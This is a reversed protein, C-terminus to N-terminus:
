GESIPAVSEIVNLFSDSEATEYDIDVSQIIVNPRQDGLKELQKNQYDTVQKFWEDIKEQTVGNALIHENMSILRESNANEIEAVQSLLEKSENQIAIEESSGSIDRMPDPIKEITIDGEGEIGLKNFLEPNKQRLEEASITIYEPEKNVSSTTSAYSNAAVAGFFGKWKDSTFLQAIGQGSSLIDAMLDDFDQVRPELMDLMEEWQRQEEALQANAVTDDTNMATISRTNTRLLQTQAYDREATEVDYEADILDSQAKEVAEMDAVNTWKGNIFMMQNKNNLTNQLAQRKEEVTLEKQAIEYSKMLLSYQHNYEETIQELRAKKAEASLNEDNMIAQMDRRHQSDLAYSENKIDLLKQSLTNYKEENFLLKRTDEDLYASMAMSAKLEKNITKQAERIKNDLEYRQTYLNNEATLLAIRETHLRKTADIEKQWDEFYQTKSQKLLDKIYQERSEAIKNKAAYYEATKELGDWATELEKDQRDFFALANAATLKSADFKYKEIYEQSHAWSTELVKNIEGMYKDVFTKMQNDYTEQDIQNNALLEDLDAQFIAKDAAMQEALKNIRVNASDGEAWNQFKSHYEIEENQKNVETQFKSFSIEYSRSLLEEANAMYEDAAQAVEQLEKFTASDFTMEGRQIAGIYEQLIQDGSNKLTSATEMETKAIFRTLATQGDSSYVDNNKLYENIKADQAKIHDETQNTIDYAEKFGPIKDKLVDIVDKNDKTNKATEATNKKIDELNENTEDLNPSITSGTGKAYQKVFTNDLEGWNKILDKAAEHPIIKTGPPFNGIGIGDKGIKKIRGNPLVAYEFGEEGYISATEDPLIGGDFYQNVYRKAGAWHERYYNTDLNQEQVTKGPSPAHIMKGNGVYIGVHTIGTRGGTNKFFVSDGPQLQSLDMTGTSVAKGLNQSYQAAATRDVPIGNARLVRWTLGSCDVGKATTGGWKYPAGLYMRAGQTISSGSGDSFASMDVSEGMPVGYGAEKLMAVISDLKTNLNDSITTLFIDSELEGSVAEVLTTIKEKVKDCFNDIGTTPIETDGIKKLEKQINPVTTDKVYDEVDKADEKTKVATKTVETKVKELGAIEEARAAAAEAAVKEMAKIKIDAIEEETEKAQAILQRDEKKREELEESLGTAGVPLYALMNIESNATLLGEGITDSEGKLAQIRSEIRSFLKDFADTRGEVITSISQAATLYIQNAYERMDSINERIEEGLEEMRNAVETMEDGTTAQIDKVRNYENILEEAKSKSTEFKQNVVDLKGTYDQEDLLEEAWDLVEIQSDYKEILAKRKELEAKLRELRDKAYKENLEKQKKLKEEDTLGQIEIETEDFGFEEEYDKIYQTFEKALNQYGYEESDTFQLNEPSVYEGSEFHAYRIKGEQALEQLFTMWLVSEKVSDTMEKLNKIIKSPDTEKELAEGLNITELLELSLKLRDVQEKTYGYTQGLAYLAEDDKGEAWAKQIHSNAVSELSLAEANAAGVRKYAATTQAILAENEAKTEGKLYKTDITVLNIKSALEQLAASYEEFTEELSSM